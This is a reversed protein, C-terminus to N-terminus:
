SCNHRVKESEIIHARDPINLIVKHWDPSHYYVIVIIGKKDGLEM